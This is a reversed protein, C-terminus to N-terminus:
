ITPYHTIVKCPPPHTNLNEFIYGILVLDMKPEFGGQFGGSRPKDGGLFPGSLIWAWLIERFQMWKHASHPPFDRGELTGRALDDQILTIGIGFRLPVM